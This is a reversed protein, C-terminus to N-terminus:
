MWSLLLKVSLLYTVFNIDTLKVCSDPIEESFLYPLWSIAEFNDIVMSTTLEFGPWPSIYLMIHYLKDTSQLDTTKKPDM